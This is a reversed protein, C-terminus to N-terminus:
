TCHRRATTIGCTSVQVTSWYSSHLQTMTAVSIHARSSGQSALLLPTMGNKDQVDVDPDLKLLLALISLYRYQSTLHLATRGNRDQANVRTKMAKDHELLTQVVEILGEDLAMHLLTRDEIDWTDLDVSHKISLQAVQVKRAFIARHLPFHGKDDRPHIDEPCKFILLRALCLHGLMAVYYLPSVRPPYSPFSPSPPHPVLSIDNPRSDARLHSKRDGMQLWVWTDFHPKDPDLLDDVGDVIPSLVDEFEAHVAINESAYRALPYSEITEKSM